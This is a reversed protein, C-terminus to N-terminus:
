INLKFYVFIFIKNCFSIIHNKKIIFAFEKQDINTTAECYVGGEETYKYLIKGNTVEQSKDNLYKLRNEIDEKTELFQKTCQTSLLALACLITLFGKM